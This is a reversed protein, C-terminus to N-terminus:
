TIKQSIYTSYLIRFLKRINKKCLPICVTLFAMDIEQTVRGVVPPQHLKGDVRRPQFFIGDAEHQPVRWAPFQYPNELLASVSWWCWWVLRISLASLQPTCVIWSIRGNLLSLSFGIRIYPSSYLSNLFYIYITVEQGLSGTRKKLWVM